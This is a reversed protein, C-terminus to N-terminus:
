RDSEFRGIREPRVSERRPRAVAFTRYSDAAGEAGVSLSAAEVAQRLAPLLEDGSTLAAALVGVLADGAGTTDVVSAVTPADVFDLRGEVILAAGHAGLTVIVSRALKSLAATHDALAARALGLLQAAELENVILPDASRTDLDQVPALNLVVRTGAADATRLAVANVAPPVEGQLVVTAAASILPAVDTVDVTGLTANAGDILIISNQGDPELLVIARGTPADVATVHTTDVGWADLSDRLRSGAEDSGIHAVLHVSSGAAAAAVAQNAGKGGIGTTSGAAPM